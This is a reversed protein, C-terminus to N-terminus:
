QYAKNGETARELAAAWMDLEPEYIWRTSLHRRNAERARELYRRADHYLGASALWKMQILAYDPEPNLQFAQDMATMASDLLGESAYLRALLAYLLNAHLTYRPNKQLAEIAQKLESYGPRRCENNERRQVMWELTLVPVSSYASIRLRAAVADMDPMPLDPAKCGLVLWNMFGRADQPHLETMRQFVKAAEAYKGDVIWIGALYEQARNSMPKESAWVVAQKFVNGWLRSENWTMACFLVLVLMAIAPILGPLRMGPHQRLQGAYFVAAFLPGAMPLYNRHEYYLELPIVTAELAHGAFFWGIAFSLVAHRRRYKIAVGLLAAIAAIAPMTSLPEFLSRSIPYDDYLLGLSLPRPLFIKGLYEIMIRSETLLREALSFDRLQYGAFIAEGRLVLYAVALALPLYVFVGLWIKWRPPKSLEAFLTAEIVWVYAALLIGNEKSLCALTMGFVMGCSAWAYGARLKGAILMERGHVFALLGALTFLACLESMRQVVYLVSSIQIPHLLWIASTFFALTLAQKKQYALIEGINKFLVFLLCGNVLHLLLNFLKFARADMPWASHQAAFTLLPLPRGLPGSIGSLVFEAIQRLSAPEKIRELGKLNPFDDLLFGGSLGPWYLACATILLALLGAVAITGPNANLRLM